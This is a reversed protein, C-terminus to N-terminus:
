WGVASWGVAQYWQLQKIGENYKNYARQYKDMPFFMSIGGYTDATVEFDSFDVTNAHWLTSTETYVVADYFADQWQWFEDPYAELAANVMGYMDYMVKEYNYNKNYAYYYVKGKTADATKTYDAILPLVKRTAEALAPMSSTRVVSIPLHGNVYDFQANYDSCMSIYMEEDNQSFFDKVMTDYPAGMGTIEAPSAILYETCNRIEYATEANMMNCCDCFIFKFKVNLAELARCMDPIQMWKFLSNQGPIVTSNDGNDVGYARRPATAKSGNQEIIWGDAHGWLVLGYEKAPRLKMCRSLVESFRGADSSYFDESYRYLTDIPQRSNNTIQVIFPARSSNADDVFALLSYDNSVNQMGTVMEQIDANIFANLNHEGPMYVIVTRKATDPIPSAIDEKKCGVLLMICCILTLLKKMRNQKQQLPVYFNMIIEHKPAFTQRIPIIFTDKNSPKLGLATDIETIDLYSGYKLL